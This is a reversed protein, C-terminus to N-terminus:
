IVDKERNIVPICALVNGILFTRKANRTFCYVQFSEGQLKLVKIRRKTVEGSRSLYMVDLLQGYRMYKSIEDKM